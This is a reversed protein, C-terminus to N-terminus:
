RRQTINAWQLDHHLSHKRLANNVECEALNSALGHHTLPSSLESAPMQSPKPQNPSAPVTFMASITPNKSAQEMSM